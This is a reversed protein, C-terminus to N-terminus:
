CSWTVGLPRWLGLSPWPFVLCVLCVLVVLFSRPHTALPIVVSSLHVVRYKPRVQLKSKDEPSLGSFEEAMKAAYVEFEADHKVKQGQFFLKKDQAKYKLEMSESYGPNESKEYAEGTSLRRPSLTVDRRPSQCTELLRLLAPFSGLLLLLSCFGHRQLARKAARGGAATKGGKEMQEGGRGWSKSLRAETRRRTKQERSKWNESEGRENDGRVM